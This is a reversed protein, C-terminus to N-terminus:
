LGVPKSCSKPSFSFIYKPRRVPEYWFFMAPPVSRRLTLLNVDSTFGFVPWNVTGASPLPMTAFMSLWFAM